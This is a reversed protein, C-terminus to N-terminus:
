LKLSVLEKAYFTQLKLYRMASIFLMLYNQFERTLPLHCKKKSVIRLKELKLVDRPCQWFYFFCSKSLLEAYLDCGFIQPSGKKTENVKLQTRFSVTVLNAFWPNKFFKFNKFWPDPKISIFPKWESLM